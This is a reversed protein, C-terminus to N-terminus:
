LKYYELLYKLFKTLVKQAKENQAYTQNVLDKLKYIYSSATTFDDFLFLSTYSKSIKRLMPNLYRDIKEIVGKGYEDDKEYGYKLFEVFEMKFHKELIDKVEKTEAAPPRHILLRVDKKDIQFFDLLDQLFWCAHLATHNCNIYLNENVLKFNTKKETAFMAQKTWPSKFDLIKDGKEPYLTLLLYTLSRLLEGWATENLCYDKFELKYPTTSELFYDRQSLDEIYYRRKGEFVINGEVVMTM